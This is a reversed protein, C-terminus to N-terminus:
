DLMMSIPSHTFSKYGDETILITDEIRVGGIDLYIGPEITVVSGAELAGSMHAHNPRMLPYEHIEIGLGHGLGHKYFDGYGADKIYSRSIHDVDKITVGARCISLARAQAERVIQWITVLEPNPQGVFFTRTMDSCYMQRRVGMDILVIDDKRLQNSTVQHHPFSTNAGFAIIPEFAMEEAGKELLYIKLKQALEIETVGEKLHPLIYNFGDCTLDSSKQIKDVEDETKQSRFSQFSFEYAVLTSHSENAFALCRDYDFKTLHRSDVLISKGKAGGLVNKTNAFPQVDISLQKKAKDYYRGDLYMRVTGDVHIFLDARSAHFGTFYFVDLPNTTFLVDAGVRQLEAIVKKVRRDM